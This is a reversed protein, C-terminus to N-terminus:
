AKRRRRVIDGKVIERVLRERWKNEGLGSDLVLLTTVAEMCCQLKRELEPHSLTEVSSGETNGYMCGLRMKTSAMISHGPHLIGSYRYLFHELHLIPDEKGGTGRVEKGATQLVAEVEQMDKMYGCEECWYETDRKLPSVPLMTGRCKTSPCLLSSLNTGCERPDECRTCTCDFFWKRSLLGRRSLTPQMEMLYQITVETGSPIRTKARVEVAKSPLKVVRSNSICSHNINSFMPYFGMEEGYGPPLDIELSNISFIGIV